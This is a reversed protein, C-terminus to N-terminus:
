KIQIGMSQQRHGNYFVYGFKGGLSANHITVGTNLKQKHLHRCIENNIHHPIQTVSMTAFNNACLVDTHANAM